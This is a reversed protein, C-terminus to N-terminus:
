LFVEMSSLGRDFGAGVQWGRMLQMPPLDELRPWAMTKQLGVDAQFRLLSQVLSRTLGRRFQQGM